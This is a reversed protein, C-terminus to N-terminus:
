NLNEEKILNATQKNLNGLDYVKSICTKTIKIHRKSQLKM